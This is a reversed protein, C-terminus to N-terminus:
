DGTSHTIRIVRYGLWQLVQTRQADLARTTEMFHAPGDVELVTKAEFHVFDVKFFEYPGEGWYIRKERVYGCPLLIRSLSDSFDGGTFDRARGRSNKRMTESIKRRVEPPCPRKAAEALLRRTENSVADRTHRRCTCDTPCPKSPSM